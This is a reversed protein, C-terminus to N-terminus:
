KLHKALFERVQVISDALAEPNFLVRYGLNVADRGEIDFGHHANPYIKLTVKNPTKGKPM